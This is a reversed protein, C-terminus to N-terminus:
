EQDGQGCHATCPCKEDGPVGDGDVVCRANAPVSKLNHLEGQLQSIQQEHATKETALAALHDDRRVLAQERYLFVTPDDGPEQPSAEYWAGLELEEPMDCLYGAVPVSLVVPPMTLATDLERAEDIDGLGHLAFANAIRELLERSIVHRTNM